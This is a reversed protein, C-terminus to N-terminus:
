INPAKQKRFLEAKVTRVSRGLRGNYCYGINLPVCVCITVCGSMRTYMSFTVHLMFTYSRTKVVDLKLTYQTSILAMVNSIVISRWLSHSLHSYLITIPYPSHILNCIPKYSYSLCWNTIVFLVAGTNQWKRLRCLKQIFM